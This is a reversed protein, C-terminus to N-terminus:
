PGVCWSPLNFHRQPAGPHLPHNYFGNSSVLFNKKGVKSIGVPFKPQLWSPSKGARSAPIGIILPVPLNQSTFHASEMLYLGFTLEATQKWVGIWQSQM